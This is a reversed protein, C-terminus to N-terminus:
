TVHKSDIKNDEFPVASFDLNTYNDVWFTELINEIKECSLRLCSSKITPLTEFQRQSATIM